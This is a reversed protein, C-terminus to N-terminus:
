GNDRATIWDNRTISTGEGFIAEARSIERIQAILAEVTNSNNAFMSIFKLKYQEISSYAGIEILMHAYNAAGTSTQPSSFDTPDLADLLSQPSFPRSIQTEQGPTGDGINSSPNNLLKLLNQTQDIVANYGMGIPDTLVENKLMTLHSQNTIDFM